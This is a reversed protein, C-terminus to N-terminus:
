EPASGAPAPSEHKADLGAERTEGTGAEIGQAPTRNVVEFAYRKCSEVVEDWDNFTTSRPGEPLTEMCERFAGRFVSPQEYRADECGMLLLAFASPISARLASVSPSPSQRTARDADASAGQDEPEGVDDLPM